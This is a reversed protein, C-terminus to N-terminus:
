QEGRGYREEYDFKAVNEAIEVALAPDELGLIHGSFVVELAEYKTMTNFLNKIKTARPGDDMKGLVSVLRVFDAEGIIRSQRNKTPEAEEGRKISIFRKWDEMTRPM